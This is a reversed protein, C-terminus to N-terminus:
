GDYRSDPTPVFYTVMAPTVRKVQFVFFFCMVIVPCRNQYDYLYCVDKYRFKIFTLYYQIQFIETLLTIHNFYSYKLTSFIIQKDRM